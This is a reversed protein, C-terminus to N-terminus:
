RSAMATMGARSDYGAAESLQQAIFAALAAASPHDFTVTAPVDLRFEAALGTRLEM